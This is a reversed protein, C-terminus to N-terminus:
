HNLEDLIENIIQRLRTDSINQFQSKDYISALNVLTQQEQNEAIQVIFTIIRAGGSKGKGKSRISIKIKYCNRGLPIGRFPNDLLLKELSLLEDRLSPYKKLLLSAEKRFNKSTIIKVKM